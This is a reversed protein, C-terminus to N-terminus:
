DWSGIGLMFARVLEDQESKAFYQHFGVLIALCDFICIAVDAKKIGAIAPPERFMEGKIQGCLINRLMQIQPVASSFFDRNSLQAGLHALIYSYVDWPTDRKQLLDIITELYVNIKLVGTAPDSQDTVGEAVTKYAYVFPSAATSPEDPLSSDLQVWSPPISKTSGRLYSSSMRPMSRQTEISVSQNRLSLRGTSATLSDDSNVSSREVVSGETTTSQKVGVDLSRSLVAVLFDNELDTTVWIAGSSDCRLRFLLKLVTLMADAPRKRSTKVVFIFTEFLLAARLASLNLFRLFLRVLGMMCVNSLSPELVSSSSRRTKLLQGSLVAPDDDELLDSSMPSSLADIIVHFMDSNARAAIEIMVSVLSSLYITDKEDAFNRLLLDIVGFQEFKILDDDRFMAEELAELASTRVDSVKGPAQIFSDVLWKADQDWNETGPYYSEKM